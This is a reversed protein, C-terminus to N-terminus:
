GLYAGGNIHIAQGTIYRGDPGALLRVMAAIDQPRGRGGDGLLASQALHYAHRESEPSRVTDIVGPVLYNVTIRDPALDHALARILGVIGAKATILHARNACGVHAIM